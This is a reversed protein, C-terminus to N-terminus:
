ATNLIRRQFRPLFSSSFCVFDRAGSYARSYLSGRTVLHKADKKFSMKQSSENQKRHFFPSSEARIRSFFFPFFSFGVGVIVGLRLRRKRSLNRRADSAGSATISLFILSTFIDRLTSRKNLRIRSVTYSLDPHNSSPIKNNLHKRSDATEFADRARKSREKGRFVDRAILAKATSRQFDVDVSM